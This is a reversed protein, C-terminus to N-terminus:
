PLFQLTTTKSQFGNRLTSLGSKRSRSMLAVRISDNEVRYRRETTLIWDTDRSRKPGLVVTSHLHYDPCYSSGRGLEQHPRNQDREGAMHEPPVQGTQLELKIGVSSSKRKGQWHKWLNRLLIFQLGWASLVYM